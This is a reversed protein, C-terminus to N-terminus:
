QFVTFDFAEITSELPIKIELDKKFWYSKWSTDIIINDIPIKSSWFDAKWEIYPVPINWSSLELKNVVSLKLTCWSWAWNCYNSYFWDFDESDNWFTDIWARNNMSKTTNDIDNASIYSWSSNLTNTDSSLQWNIIASTWWSLTETSTTNIDPVQFSFNINSWDLNNSTLNKWVNLQVPKWPYIINYDTNYESNWKWSPPLTSWTAEITFENSTSNSQMTTWTEYWVDNQNVEWLGEEIATTAQYYAKSSNEIWKTVPIIYELISMALLTIILVLWMAFILSLWKKNNNIM